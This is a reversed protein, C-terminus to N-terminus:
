LVPVDELYSVVEVAVSGLAKATAELEAKKVTESFNTDDRNQVASYNEVSVVSKVIVGSRVDLLIAEISCYSKTEDDAVFKYRQYSNCLSRYTLLLDAQFRAAAERLAPVSAQGPTLMAPLFSADYVKKSSRLKDIFQSSISENLLTFDNSYYRWRNDKNLRLIAIRNIKPLRVKYNLLSLIKEDGDNLTTENILGIPEEQYSAPRSVSSITTCAPLVLIAFIISILKM